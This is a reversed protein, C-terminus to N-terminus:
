LLPSLLRLIYEGFHLGKKQTRYDETVERSVAFLDEFDQRVDEIIHGGYFFVGNEFHLYLSRYDLNITGVTAVQDDSVCEKAHLFGPTYEFIRVGSSVLRAYYSRTLKYVIKKDPIGPTIIRVDVGRRAALRLVKNMEDTIILYPTTFYVYRKAMSVINLYVNEGVHEDDLPSDAYPQVLGEDAGPVPVPLAAAEKAEGPLASHPLPLYKEYSVDDIDSANVANWMELFMFTLSRVAEGELRVGTDKWHGYPHTINFYEEALNYGGTFGVRGDIVTIKRHDRNNMFINVLPTIPNFVRCQIGDAEMEKIFEPSIFSFSGIDDYFIRVEVGAAAKERLVSLIRNFASAHEIAHYELFIFCEATQLDRVQADLADRTDGYFTVSTNGYMPYGANEYIYHAMNAAAVDDEKLKLYISKDKPLSGRLRADLDDFRRRMGKTAGERGYFAYLFLGVFPVAIILMIWSLKIASNTQRGYIALAVILAALTMLQAIWAAYSTLRFLLLFVWSLQIALGIGILLIRGASNKVNTRQETRLHHRKTKVAPEAM